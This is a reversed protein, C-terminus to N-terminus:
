SLFCLIEVSSINPNKILPERLLFEIELSVTKEFFDGTYPAFHNCPLETYTGKDMKSAAKKVMESPILSDYEGAILLVPCTVKGASSMPNYFAM